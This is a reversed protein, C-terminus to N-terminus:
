ILLIVFIKSVLPGNETVTPRHEAQCHLLLMLLFDPVSIVTAGAAAAFLLKFPVNVNSSQVICPDPHWSRYLLFGM